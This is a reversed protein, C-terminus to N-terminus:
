FKFKQGVSVEHATIQLLFARGKGKYSCVIAVIQYLRGALSKFGRVDAQCDRYNHPLGHQTSVTGYRTLVTTLLSREM